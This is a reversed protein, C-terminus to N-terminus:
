RSPNPIRGAGSGPSAGPRRAPQPGADGATLAGLRDRLRELMTRLAAQESGDLAGLLTGMQAHHASLAAAARSAGSPTLRAFSGRRDEPCSERAALGANCLRDVARTLGSPSLAARAALDSMRLRGGPARALGVVVEYSQPPFGYRQEFTRGAVRRLAAAMEALLGALAV